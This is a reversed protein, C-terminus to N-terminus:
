NKVIMRQTLLEKGNNISYLYLGKSYSSTNLRITNVGRSSTIVQSDIQEGLLNYVAFTIREPCGSIFQIKAQNILHNVYASKLEFTNSEFKNISSTNDMINLYYYDIVDNQTIPVGIGADVTTETSFIIQYSGIDASTPNTTSSLVACATSGGAFVCNQPLCSYTFNSPLGTVGTLEITQVTVQLPVGNFDVTTDLPSIITINQNYAQGVYAPMLNTASDPYIGAATFQPDPTCQASVFFTTLFFTLILLTKKM